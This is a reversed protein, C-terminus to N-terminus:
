ILISVRTDIRELPVKNQAFYIKQRRIKVHLMMKSRVVHRAM